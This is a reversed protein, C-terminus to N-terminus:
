PVTVLTRMIAAMPLAMMSNSLCASASQHAQVSGAAQPTV